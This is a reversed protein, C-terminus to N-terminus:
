WDEEDVQEEPLEVGFDYITSRGTLPKVLITYISMEEPLLEEDEFDDTRTLWISSREVFGNPFFHINVQGSTVPESIAQTEVRYFTAEKPLSTRTTLETKYTNFQAKKKRFKNAFEGWGQWKMESPDNLLTSRFFDDDELEEEEEEEEVVIMGESVDLPKQSLFFPDKTSESWYADQDLDIVLRIYIRELIARDYLYKINGSLRKASSKLHVNTMSNVTPIAVTVMMAFIFVSVTIEILTFGGRM